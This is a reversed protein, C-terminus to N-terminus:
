DDRLPQAGVAHSFVRDGGRALLRQHPRELAARTRSPHRVLERAVVGAAMASAGRLGTSTAPPPGTSPPPPRRRGGRGWPWPCRSPTTGTTACSTPLLSTSINAKMVRSASASVARRPSATYQLRERPRRQCLPSSDPWM